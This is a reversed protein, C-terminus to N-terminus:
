KISQNFSLICVTVNDADGAKLSLAKRVLKAALEKSDYCHEDVVCRRVYNVAQQSSMACWVGDSAVIVFEDEPTIDVVQVEPDPIVLGPFGLDGFSRTVALVGFLRGNSDIAQPNVQAIRARETALDLTHDSSLDRATGGSSLVARCDGANAITLRGPTALACIATTGSEDDETRLTNAVQEAARKFAAVLCGPPDDVIQQDPMSFLYKPLLTQALQSARKGSHGDFVGAMAHATPAKKAM